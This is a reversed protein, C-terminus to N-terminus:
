RVRDLLLTKETGAGSEWVIVASAPGSAIAAASAREAFRVPKENARQLMLAGNSEWLMLPISGAFGVVSQAANEALKREPAQATSAFVTRERRWAALWEGGASFAVSGGDMPCGKLPWTGTGLKQATSFTRGGDQSLSLYLDRSGGLWNRWTAAIEGRPGIAVNPVCCECVHGDPSEYVRTDEGWSAGGDRSVRCRVEMGTGRLDLWVVVAVGRGDGAVSHLGERASGSVTNLPPSEKWTQGNDASTWAHLNGDGHSIATVTVLQDTATVRPGRRMKLALKNLEAIKVPAPFAEDGQASTHFIASDQGFVVHIRGNADTALQPQVAGRLGPPVIEVPKAFTGSVFLCTALLCFLLRTM